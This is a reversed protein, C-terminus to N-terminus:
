LITVHSANYVIFRKKYVAIQKVGLRGCELWGYRRSPVAASSPVAAAAARPLTAFRPALIVRPLALTRPSASPLGPSPLSSLGPRQSM